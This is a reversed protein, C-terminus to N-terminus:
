LIYYVKTNCYNQDCISQYLKESGSSNCKTIHSASVASEITRNVQINSDEPVVRWKERNPGHMYGSIQQDEDVGILGSVICGNM